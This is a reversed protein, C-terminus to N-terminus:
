YGIAFYRNVVTNLNSWSFDTKSFTSVFGANNTSNNTIQVGFCANPFAIPFTETGSTGSTTVGWQLILGSPLKQYGETALSQVFDSKNVLQKWTNWGQNDGYRYFINGNSSILLQSRATTNIGESVFLSGAAGAESPLNTLTSSYAYIGGTLVTDIDGSIDKKKEVFKTQGNFFNEMQLKNVAEDDAVANAVKFLQTALGGLKAYTTDHNHNGLAPPNDLDLLVGWYDSNSEPAKPAPNNVPDSNSNQKAFYIKNGRRVIDKYSATAVYPKDEQWFSLGKSQLFNLYGFIQNFITNLQKGNIKSNTLSWGFSSLVAPIDEKLSDEEVAFGKLLVPNTDAM